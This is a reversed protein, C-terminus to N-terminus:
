LSAGYRPEKSEGCIGEIQAVLSLKVKMSSTLCSLVYPLNKINKSAVLKNVFIRRSSVM